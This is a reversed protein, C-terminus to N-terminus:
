KSLIVIKEITNLRNHAYEFSIRVQQGEKLISLPRRVTESDGAYQVVTFKSVSMKVDSVLVMNNNLDLQDIFVTAETLDARVFTSLMLILAMLCLSQKKIINM